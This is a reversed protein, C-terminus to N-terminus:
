VKKAAFFKGLAAEAIGGIATVLAHPDTVGPKGPDGATTDGSAAEGAPKQAEAAARSRTVAASAAAAAMTLGAALMERGQPSNARELIAEGTKRLDKPLKVGAIRKPIKTKRTKAM